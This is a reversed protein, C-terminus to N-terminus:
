STEEGAEEPEEGSLGELYPAAADLDFAYSTRTVEQPTIGEIWTVTVAIELLM